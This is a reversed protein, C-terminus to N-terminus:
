PRRLEDNVEKMSQRFAEVSSKLRRWFGSPRGSGRPLHALTAGRAATLDVGFSHLVESATGEQRILGLLLHSASIDGHGMELAEAMAFELAEKAESTYRVEDHSVASEGVVVGEMIRWYLQEADVDIAYLVSETSPQPARILGLLLHETDLREHQLRTAEERAATLAKRVEATFDHSM